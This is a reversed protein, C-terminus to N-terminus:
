GNTPGWGKVEIVDKLIEKDLNNDAPLRRLRNNELELDKLRKVDSAEM